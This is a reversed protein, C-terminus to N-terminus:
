KVLAFHEEFAEVPKQKAVNSCVQVYRIAIDDWPVVLSGRFSEPSTRQACRNALLEFWCHIGNVHAHRFQKVLDKGHPSTPRLLYALNPGNEANIADNIQVLYTSFDMSM